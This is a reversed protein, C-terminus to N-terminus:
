AASSCRTSSSRGAAVLSVAGERSSSGASRVTSTLGLVNTSASAPALALTPAPAPEALTTRAAALLQSASQFASDTPAEAAQGAPLPRGLRPPTTSRAAASKTKAMRARIDALKMMQDDQSTGGAGPAAAPATGSAAAQPVACIPKLCRCQPRLPLISRRVTAAVIQARLADTSSGPASM